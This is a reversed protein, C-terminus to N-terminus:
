RILDTLRVRDDDDVSGNPIATAKDAMELRPRSAASLNSLRLARQRVTVGKSKVMM